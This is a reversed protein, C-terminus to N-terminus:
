KQYTSIPDLIDAMINKAKSNESNMIEQIEPNNMKSQTEPYQYAFSDDFDAYSELCTPCVELLEIIANATVADKYGAFESHSRTMVSTPLDQVREHSVYDKNWTNYQLSWLDGFEDIATTKSTETLHYMQGRNVGDYEKPANLSEGTVEIGHNFYNQWANREMDWVDTGVINFGLPERFTHNITVILCDNDKGDDNCTEVRTSVNVDELANEPDTVIVTEIGDQDIDLEIKAKSNSIIEGKDLGFAFSFHKINQPGIDEYIRFEAINPEGVNVTILPYPTFFREADVSKGNYTFGNDVVRMLKSDIGLTPSQCNNCGGPNDEGESVPAIVSMNANVAAPDFVTFVRSISSTHSGDTQTWHSLTCVITINGLTGTKVRPDCLFSNIDGTLPGLGEKYKADKFKSNLEIKIPDSNSSTLHAFAENTTIIGTSLVALSLLLIISYKMRYSEIHDINIKHVLIM